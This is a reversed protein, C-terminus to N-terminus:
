QELVELIKVHLVYDNSASKVLWLDARETVCLGDFYHVGYGVEAAACLNKLSSFVAVSFFRVM